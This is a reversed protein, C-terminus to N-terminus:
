NGQTHFSGGMLALLMLPGPIFFNSTHEASASYRSRLPLSSLPSTVLPTPSMDSVTAERLVLGVSSGYGGHVLLAGLFHLTLVWYLANSPSTQSSSVELGRLLQVLSM